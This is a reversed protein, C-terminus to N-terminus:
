SLLRFAQSCRLGILSITAHWRPPAYQCVFAKCVGRNDGFEWTKGFQACFSLRRGATRDVTRFITLDVLTPAQLSKQFFREAVFLCASVSVTYFVRSPPEVLSHGNKCVLRKTTVFEVILKWTKKALQDVQRKRKNCFKIFFAFIALGLATKERLNWRMQFGVCNAFNMGRGNFKWNDSRTELCAHEYFTCTCTKRLTGLQVM